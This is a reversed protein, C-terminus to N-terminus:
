EETLLGSYTHDDIILTVQKTAKAAPASTGQRYGDDYPGGVVNPIGSIASVDLATGPSMSTRICYHCHSGGSGAPITHGTYGEIGIVDTIKVQDGVKCRIESLHGYHYYRGDALIVVYHGFGQSHDNANEWGAFVVKGTATAHIEKSDIGVLDLGDHAAGKYQQTVKFKGMYPSNM